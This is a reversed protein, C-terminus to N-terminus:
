IDRQGKPVSEMGDDRQRGTERDQKQIDTKREKDPRDKQRDKGRM